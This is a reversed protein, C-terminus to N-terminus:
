VALQCRISLESPAGQSVAACIRDFSCSAQRRRSEFFAQLEACSAFNQAPNDGCAPTGIVRVAFAAIPAFTAHFQQGSKLGAADTATTSPYADLTAVTKWAGGAETQVQVQPKQKGGMTDFWGGDHFSQGHAFVVRDITTPKGANVAFWDEDAKGGTFTVAFTGTDSDTIDGMVNGRRSATWQCGAFLSEAEISPTSVPIWVKFRSKGDAGAEAYPLLTLNTKGKGAVEGQLTFVIRDPRSGASPLYMPKIGLGVRNLSGVGPNESSDLALVLPGHMLAAKGENEHDGVVVRDALNMELTVTDKRNWARNLVAYGSSNSPTPMGNLLVRYTTYPPIRLRLPFRQGNREPSVTLTVDGGLPYRTTQKVTVSGSKLRTTAVADNYLNVVLGGDASTMYAICPILAVGRPGSSHCCTTASDYPKRGELPTYYAWDDGTPKQAALLHNYISKELEDAYRADGTLRLLQLNMQEWTVTVCTECINANALNPLHYDDQFLEGSSASGTIYLRNKVIDNWAVEMLRLLRKEGTSRYLELLGNFNSTMEYAKANAVARVSRKNELSALIAPGSAADYNSVIYQAFDLYRRDNTSRYLLVIPELVSDPAMGMHEGSKNIDRKGPEIGFTAILLNGIKRCTTLAESGLPTPRDHNALRTFQYYTLLGLLDYKHVWVDWSTWRHAKKYTGLYGDAEQTRLLRGVVRDVKAKLEASHGYNWTLMAAHLFKGVHEGQWDQHPAERREFADLMDDEDVKLMRNVANADIRAGLFGGKISVEEPMLPSFVDRVQATSPIVLGRPNQQGMCRMAMMGLGMAILFSRRKM